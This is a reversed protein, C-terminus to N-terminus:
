KIHVQFFYLKSSYMKLKSYAYAHWFNKKEVM